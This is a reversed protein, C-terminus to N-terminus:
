RRSERGLCSAIAVHPSIGYPATRGDAYVDHQEFIIARPEQCRIAAAEVSPFTGLDGYIFIRGATDVTGVHYFSPGPRTM